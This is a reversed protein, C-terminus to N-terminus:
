RWHNIYKQANHLMVAANDIFIVMVLRINCGPSLTLEGKFEMLAINTNRHFGFRARPIVYFDIILLLKWVIVLLSVLICFLLKREGSFIWACEPKSFKIKRVNLHVL